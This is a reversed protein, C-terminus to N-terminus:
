IEPQNSAPLAGCKRFDLLNGQKLNGLYDLRIHALQDDGDPTGTSSVALDNQLQGVVFQTCPQYPVRKRRSDYGSRATDPWGSFTQDKCCTPAFKKHSSPSVL